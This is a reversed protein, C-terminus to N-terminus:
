AQEFWGHRNRQEYYDDDDDEYERENQIREAQARAANANTFTSIAEFRPDARLERMAEDIKPQKDALAANYATLISDEDPLTVSLLRNEADVVVRIGNVTGVGQIQELQHQARQVKLGLEEFNNTQPFM